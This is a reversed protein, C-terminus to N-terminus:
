PIPAPKMGYLKFTFIISSTIVTFFSSAKSVELAKAFVSPNNTPIEDPAAAKAAVSNALLGSFLPLFITTNSGSVPSLYKDVSKYM